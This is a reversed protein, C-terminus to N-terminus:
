WIRSLRADLISIPPLTGSLELWAGRGATLSAWIPLGGEYVVLNGDSQFAALCGSECSRGGTGADWIPGEPAYVVLNGDYQMVLIRSGFAVYQGAKLLLDPFRRSSAWVISGGNNLLRVLPGSRALQLGTAAGAGSTTMTAWVPNM